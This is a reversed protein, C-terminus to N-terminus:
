LSISNSALSEFYSSSKEIHRPLRSMKSTVPWDVSRLTCPARRIPAENLWLGSSRRTAISSLPPRATHAGYDQERQEINAGHDLFWEFMEPLDEYICAHLSPPVWDVGELQDPDDALIQEALAYDKADLADWISPKAPPAPYQKSRLVSTTSDSRLPQWAFAATAAAGRTSPAPPRAVARQRTSTAAAAAPEYSTKRRFGTRVCNGSTASCTM